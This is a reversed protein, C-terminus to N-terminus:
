RKINKAIYIQLYSFVFLLLIKSQFILGYVLSALRREGFYYSIVLRMATSHPNPNETRWHSAPAPPFTPPLLARRVKEPGNAVRWLWGECSALWNLLGVIQKRKADRTRHFTYRFCPAILNTHPNIERLNWRMYRHSIDKWVQILDKNVQLDMYLPQKCCWQPLYINKNLIWKMM